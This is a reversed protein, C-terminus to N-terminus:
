GPLTYEISPVFDMESIPVTSALKFKERKEIM